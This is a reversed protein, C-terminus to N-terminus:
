VVEVLEVQYTVFAGTQLLNTEPDIAATSRALKAGKAYNNELAQVTVVNDNVHTIYVHEFNDGDYVTAYTLSQFGAASAVSIIVSTGSAVAALIDSNPSQLTLRNPTGDFVDYFSGNNGPVRGDIELQTLARKLDKELSLVYGYAGFIGNEINNAREATFRTGQQIVEQNTPDVIHDEWETKNYPNAMKGLLSTM